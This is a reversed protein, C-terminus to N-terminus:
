AKNQRVVASSTIKETYIINILLKKYTVYEFFNSLIDEIIIIIIVKLQDKEM